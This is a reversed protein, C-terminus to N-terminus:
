GLLRFKGRIGTTRDTALTKEDVGLLAHVDAALLAASDNLLGEACMVACADGRGASVRVAGEVNGAPGARRWEPGGGEEAIKHFVCDSWGAYAYRHDCPSPSFLLRAFQLSSLRASRM